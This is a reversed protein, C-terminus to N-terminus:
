DDDDKDKLAKLAHASGFGGIFGVLVKLLDKLLEPNKDGLFVVLFIFVACFILVYTLNYKKTSQAYQFGRVSENESFTILKDIHQENIKKLFPPQRAGSISGMFATLQRFEQRVEPPMKELIEPEIFSDSGSADENADNNNNISNSPVLKDNGDESM